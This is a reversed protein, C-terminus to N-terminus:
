QFITGNHKEIRIVVNHQEAAMNAAMIFKTLTVHGMHFRLNTCRDIGCLVGEVAHGYREGDQLVTVKVAQLCKPGEGNGTFTAFLRRRYSPLIPILRGIGTCLFLGIPWWAVAQCSIREHSRQNNWQIVSFRSFMVLYKLM